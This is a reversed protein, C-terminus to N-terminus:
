ETIRLLKLYRENNEVWKKYVDRAIIAHMFSYREDKIKDPDGINERFSSLLESASIGSLWHAEESHGDEWKKGGKHNKRIEVLSIFYNMMSKVDENEGWTKSWKKYTITTKGNHNIPLGIYKDYKERFYDTSQNELHTTLFIATFEILNKIQNEENM